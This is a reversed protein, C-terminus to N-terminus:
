AVIQWELQRAAWEYGAGYFDFNDLGEEQLSIQRLYQRGQRLAPFSRRVAAM